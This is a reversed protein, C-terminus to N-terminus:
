SDNEDLGGVGCNFGDSKSFLPLFPGHLGCIPIVRIFWLAPRWLAPCRMIPYIWMYYRNRRVYNWECRLIFFLVSMITSRSRLSRCWERRSSGTWAGWHRWRCRIKIRRILVLHRATIISASTIFIRSKREYSFFDCSMMRWHIIFQFDRSLNINHLAGSALNHRINILAKSTPPYSPFNLRNFRIANFHLVGWVSSQATPRRMGPLKWTLNKKKGEDQLTLFPLPKKRCTFYVWKLDDYNVHASKKARGELKPWVRTWQNWWHCCRKEHEIFPLYSDGKGKLGDCTMVDEDWKKQFTFLLFGKKSFTTLRSARNM